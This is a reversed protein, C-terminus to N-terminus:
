NLAAGGAPRGARAPARAAAPPAREVQGDGDLEVIVNRKGWFDYDTM